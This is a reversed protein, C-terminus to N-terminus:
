SQGRDKLSAFLALSEATEYTIARASWDGDRYRVLEVIAPGEIARASRGDSMQDGDELRLTTVGTEAHRAWIDLIERTLNM